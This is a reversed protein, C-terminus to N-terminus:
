GERLYKEIDKETLIGKERAKRSWYGQIEFFEKKMRERKALRLAEQIVASVSKGEEKALEEVERAIDEPLSITKKIVTGMYDVEKLVPIFIDYWINRDPAFKLM